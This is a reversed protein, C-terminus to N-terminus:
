ATANHQKQELKEAEAVLCNYYLEAYLGHVGSRRLSGRTRIIADALADKGREAWKAAKIRSLTAIYRGLTKHRELQKKSRRGCSSHRGQCQGLADHVNDLTVTSWDPTDSDLLAQIQPRLGFDGDSM